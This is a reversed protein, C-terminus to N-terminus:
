DGKNEEHDSDASDPVSEDGPLSRGHAALDTEILKAWKEADSDKYGMSTSLIDGGIGVLVNYPVARGGLKRHVESNSDLYVPFKIGQRHVFPKVQKSTRPPDISIALVQFGAPEWEEHFAQLKPMEALCPKCYTAWFNILLPGQGTFEEIKHRKGDLDTLTLKPLTKPAALVPGALLAIMVAALLSRRKM